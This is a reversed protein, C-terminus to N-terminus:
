STATTTNAAAAATAATTTVHTSNGRVAAARSMAEALTQSSGKSSRDINVLAHVAFRRMGHVRRRLDEHAEELHAVALKLSKTLNVLEGERNLLARGDAQTELLREKLAEQMAIYQGVMQEEGQSEAEALAHIHESLYPIGVDGPGQQSRTSSDTSLLSVKRDADDDEEFVRLFSEVTPVPTTQQRLVALERVGASDTTNVSEVLFEQVFHMKQQLASLAERLFDNTTKLRKATAKQEGTINELEQICAQVKSNSQLVDSIRAETFTINGEMAQRRLRLVNQSERQMSEVEQRMAGQQRKFENVSKEAGRLLTDVDPLVIDDALLAVARMTAAGFCFVSIPSRPM